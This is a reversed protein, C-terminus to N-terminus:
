KNVSRCGDVTRRLRHLINEKQEDLISARGHPVGSFDDNSDPKWGLYIFTDNLLEQV